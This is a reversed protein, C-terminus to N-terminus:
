TVTQSPLREGPKDRQFPVLIRWIDSLLHRNGSGALAKQAADDTRWNEHPWQFAPTAGSCLSPARSRLAADALSYGHNELCAQEGPSFANLDTRIASFLDLLPSGYGQPNPTIPPFAGLRTNIQWLAGALVPIEPFLSTATLQPCVKALADIKKVVEFSDVLWRKRVAAVQEGGIEYARFLRPVIRQAINLVSGFPMGADSVLLTRSRRWVPEVALNDYIGGDGLLVLRKSQEPLKRRKASDPQATDWPDVRSWPLEDGLQLRLAGFGPPFASSAAVAESVTVQGVDRYDTYFDGMRGKPGGHFHWCSGTQVNTACFVFRPAHEGPPPLDALRRRNMLPTYAEATFNARVSFWDRLMVPLNAPNLRAGLLLQTRLDRACFGRVADGVLSNFNTFVGDAGREMSAWRTALIGNVISGGSVSTIVKIRALVGLENLRRLSGLHFLTARFGGGSLCLTLGPDPEARPTDAVPAPQIGPSSATPPIPDTM